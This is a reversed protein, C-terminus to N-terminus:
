AYMYSNYMLHLSALSSFIFGCKWIPPITLFANFHPFRFIRVVTDHIEIAKVLLFEVYLLIRATVSSYYYYVELKAGALTTSLIVDGDGRTNSFKAEECERSFSSKANL